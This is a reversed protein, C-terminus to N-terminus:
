LGFCCESFLTACQPLFIFIIKVCYFVLILWVSKGYYSFQSYNFVIDDRKKEWAQKKLKNEMIKRRKAQYTENEEDSEDEEDESQLLIYSM